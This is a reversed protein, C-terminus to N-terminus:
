SLADSYRMCAISWDPRGMWRYMVDNDMNAARWLALENAFVWLQFFIETLLFFGYV